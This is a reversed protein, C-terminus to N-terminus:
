QDIGLKARLEIELDNMKGDDREHDYGCLHLIGHLILQKIEIVLPLGNEAAQAKARELSIAIDGMFDNQKEFAEGSYPFSLVDTPTDQGRYVNNLRAIEDDSLFAISVSKKTTQPIADITRLVFRDLEDSAIGNIKEQGVIVSM